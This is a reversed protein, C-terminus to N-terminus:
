NKIKTPKYKKIRKKIWKLVREFAEKDSKKIINYNNNYPYRNIIKDLKKIQPGWTFINTKTRREKMMNRTNKINKIYVNNNIM